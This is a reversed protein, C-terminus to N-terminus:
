FTLQSTTSKPIESYVILAVLIVTILINGILLLIYKKCVRKRRKKDLLVKLFFFPILYHRYRIDIEKTDEEEKESKDINYIIKGEDKSLITNFDVKYLKFIRQFNELDPLCVNNEWKSITQRSLMLEEAVENQSMGINKRAKKLKEGLLMNM